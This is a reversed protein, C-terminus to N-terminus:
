QSKKDDNEVGALFMPNLEDGYLVYINKLEAFSTFGGAKKIYQKLSHKKKYSYYGPVNVEGKIHVLGTKKMVFLSDGDNLIFNKDEWGIKLSDRYIEVGEKLANKTFGGALDIVDELTTTKNLAVYGPQNIEGHIIIKKIPLFKNSPSISIHDGNKLSIDNEKYNVIIKLPRSEDPNKRYIIIKSLDMTKSFDIDKTSMTANILDSLKM